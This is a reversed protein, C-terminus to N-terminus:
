IALEKKEGWNYGWEMDVKFPITDTYLELATLEMTDRVVVAIEDRLDERCETLISDHVPIRVWAVGQYDRAFRKRLRVLANNNIDSSTSQPVFSLGEKILDKRNEKTILWFRRRRGFATRLPQGSLVTKKIFDQWEVVDPIMALYERQYKAAAIESMDYEMAISYAERGYNTGHVMAKGRVYQEGDYDPGYLRTAVMKNWDDLNALLYEDGSEVAVVRLEAGKYDGQVFINGDNPIYQKRIIEHRPQNQLNPNRSSYRGSTTGHILYTPYVRDDKVRKAIGKVYTSYRKHELRYELMLRCFTACEQNRASVAWEGLTELADADTTAINEVQKGTLRAMAEKVQKPSRPNDVWPKLKEEIPDLIQLYDGMLKRNYEVDVRVGDKEVYVMENSFEVMMDHLDRLKDHRGLAKDFLEYLRWTVVVDNANYKYLVDRPILAYSEKKPNIYQKVVGKWNPTGLIEQGNYDLSNTGPREDLAYSALMTDFWLELRGYGHYKLEQLDYKGNHAITRRQRLFDGVLTRVKNDQIAGEGLVVAKDACWALGICLVGQSRHEYMEEKDYDTEIDVVIADGPLCVQALQKLGMRVEGPTEWVKYKPEKWSIVEEEVVKGIDMLLFPFHDSVRLCAAPHITPIFKRGDELWKAPGIREQTIKVQKKLIAQAATNGLAVITEVDKIEEELRPRCARIAGQPPTANDQPRCLCANTMISENREIGYKQLVMNLLKGSPGTFPRGEKAEQYGPAEGVFAIKAGEHIESPVFITDPTNLPCNACDALPHRQESQVM